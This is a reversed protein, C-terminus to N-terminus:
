PQVPEISTLVVVEKEIMLQLREPFSILLTIFMCDRFLLNEYIENAGKGCKHLAIM